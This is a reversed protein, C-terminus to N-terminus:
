KSKIHKLIIQSMAESPCYPEILKMPQLQFLINEFFFLIDEPTLWSSLRRPPRNMPSLTIQYSTAPLRADANQIFKM